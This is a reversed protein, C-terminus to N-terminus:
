EKPWWFWRKVHLIKRIPTKVVILLFGISLLCWIAPWENINGTLQMALLPGMIGHYLTFRWSGYLVPFVFATFEYTTFGSRFFLNDVCQNGIGNTPVDWAIHWDGSVSCLSEGCLPRRLDCKGAWDFPYLQIIMVVASMFCLTYIWPAIRKRIRDPIFYM